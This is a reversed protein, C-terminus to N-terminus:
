LFGIGNHFVGRHSYVNRIVQPNKILEDVLDEEPSYNSVGVMFFDDIKKRIKKITSMLSENLFDDFPLIHKM